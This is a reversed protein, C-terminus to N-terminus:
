PRLGRPARPKPLQAIRGEGPSRSAILSDLRLVTPEFALDPHRKRLEDLQRSAIDDLRAATLGAALDLRALWDEPNLRSAVLTELLAYKTNIPLLLAGLEAHPVPQGIGSRIAEILARRAGLTDREDLATRAARLARLHAVSDDRAGWASWAQEAAPRNEQWLHAWGLWYLHDIRSEGAELGRRFAHSAGSPRELLLLDTGVQFFPDAAKSYLHEFDLGNWCLFVCPHQAATTDGFQSYFWSELTDDRYLGRVAAGSGMQFGAWPPMTAFFFRTNPAPEPEVRRLADALQRSMAAGREFYHATLRSGPNWPDDTVAFAPIASVAAHLWLMATTMVLTAPRPWRRSALAVLLAGGIAALTYFYSSWIAAVPITPLTFLVTWVLAFNLAARPDIAAPEPPTEPARRALTAALLLALAAISPTTSLLSSVLQAPFEIGTLAQALHVFSATLTTISLAGAAAALPAGKVVLLTGALWLAIPISFPALRKIVASLDRGEICWAWMGLMLPLPLASEKSLVAATFAVLALRDRGRRFLAMAALASVMALLDQSCSIWTLNVRQFPLLLLYLLGTWAGAQGAMARMLDFALWGGTLLLLLNAIHFVMPEGGSLPGLLEFWVPRSLPRFYNSLADPRTLSEILSQRRAQELFLHDDNLFGVTLAGAYLAVVGAVLLVPALWRPMSTANPM